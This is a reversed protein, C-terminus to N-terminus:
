QLVPRRLRLSEYPLDSFAMTIQSPPMERDGASRANMITDAISLRSGQHPLSRRRCSTYLRYSMVNCEDDHPLRFTERSTSIPIFLMMAVDARRM